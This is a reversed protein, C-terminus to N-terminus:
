STYYYANYEGFLSFLLSSLLGIIISLSYIIVTFIGLYFIIENRSTLEFYEIIIKFYQNSELYSFNTIATLFPIISFISLMELIGNFIILIQLGILYGRQGLPILLFLNKITNYM